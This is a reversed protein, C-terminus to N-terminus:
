CDTQFCVTQFTGASKSVFSFNFVLVKGFAGLKGSVICLALAKSM